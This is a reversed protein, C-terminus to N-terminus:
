GRATVNGALFVNKSKLDRHLIRQSHLYGIALCQQAFMGLIQAGSLFNNPRRKQLYDFLDGASAFEMAITLLDPDTWSGLHMIINPHQLCQLIHSEQAASAKDTASLSSLKIEKLVVLGEDLKALIAAGFSGEGM